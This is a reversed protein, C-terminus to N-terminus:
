CVRSFTVERQLKSVDVEDPSWGEWLGDDEMAEAGMAVPTRRYESGYYGEEQDDHKLALVASALAAEAPNLTLDEDGMIAAAALM